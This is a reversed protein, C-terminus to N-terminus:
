IIEEPSSSPDFSDKLDEAPSPSVAMEGGDETKLERFKKGLFEYLDCDEKLADNLTPYYRVDPKVGFNEIIAGAKNGTRYFRGASTTFVAKIPELFNPFIQQLSAYGITYAGGAGVNDSVGVLLSLNLDTQISAFLDGGSYCLGNVLTVVPGFFAREAPSELARKSYLGTTPGSFPEGIAVATGVAATASQILEIEDESFGDVSASELAQKLTKTARLVTPSQPPSVGSLLEVMAKVYDPRGGGNNRLDMILGNEPMLKLVRTIEAILDGTVRAAFDPLVFRGVPGSKTSIIEASFSEKFQPKIRVPIRGEEVVRLNTRLPTWDAKTETLLALDEKMSFPNPGKPAVRQMMAEAMETEIVEFFLWDLTATGETGDQNIYGLEVSPGPPFPEFSLLRLSMTIVANDMQAAENSGYSDKGLAIVVDDIPKGNYTLVESGIGFSTDNPLFEDIVEAVVYRRKTPTDSTEDYFIETFFALTSISSNLPYPNIFITHYDDMLQFARNMKGFFDINATTEDIEIADLAAPFDIGLLNEHLFKHPNFGEYVKKAANIIKLKEDLPLNIANTENILRKASTPVLNEYEEDEETDDQRASPHPLSLCLGHRHNCIDVTAPNATACHSHRTCRAFVTQIVTLVLLFLTAISLRM